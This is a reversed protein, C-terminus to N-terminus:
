GSVSARGGRRWLWGAGRGLVAALLAAAAAACALPWVDLDLPLVARRWSLVVAVSLGHLAALLLPAVRGSRRPLWVAGLLLSLVAAMSVMPLLAVATLPVQYPPTLPSLAAQAPLATAALAVLLAHNHLGLSGEVPPGESQAPAPAGVPGGCYRCRPMSVPITAGCCPCPIHAEPAM